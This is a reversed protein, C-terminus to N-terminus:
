PCVCTGCRQGGPQTWNAPGAAPPAYSTAPCCPVCAYGPSAGSYQVPAPCYHRECWTRCGTASLMGALAVAIWMRKGAM